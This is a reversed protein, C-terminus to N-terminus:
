FRSLGIHALGFQGFYNCNPYKKIEKAINKFIYNERKTHELSDRGFNYNYFDFKLSKRMREMLEAFESYNDVLLEEYSKKNYRFELYIKDFERVVVDYKENDIITEFDNIYQELLDPMDVDRFILRLAYIFSNYLSYNELDIGIIKFKDDEPCNDYFDKLFRYHFEDFQGDESIIKLSESNGTELYHQAIIGTAYGSELFIIRVNANQYLDRFINLFIKSNEKIFHIEGVVFLRYKSYDTDSILGINEDYPKVNNFLFEKYDEDTQSSLNFNFIISCFLFIITKTIHM